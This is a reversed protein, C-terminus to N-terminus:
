RKNIDGMENANIKQPIMMETNGSWKVFCPSEMRANNVSYIRRMAYLHLIFSDVFKRRTKQQHTQLPEKQEVEDKAATEYLKCSNCCHLLLKWRKGKIFRDTSVTKWYSAVMVARCRFPLLFVIESEQTREKMLFSVFLVYIQPNLLWVTIITIILHKKFVQHEIVM